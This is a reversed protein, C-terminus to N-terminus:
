ACRRDEMRAVHGMGMIRLKIVRIVNPSFYLDYLENKHPRGLKGTV